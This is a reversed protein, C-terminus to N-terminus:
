RAPIFIVCLSLNSADYVYTKKYLSCLYFDVQKIKPRNTRFYLVKIFFPFQSFKHGFYRPFELCPICGTRISKSLVAGCVGYAASLSMLEEPCRLM